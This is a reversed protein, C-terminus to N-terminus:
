KRNVSCTLNLRESCWCDSMDRHGVRSAIRRMRLGNKVTSFSLLAICSMYMIYPSMMIICSVMVFFFVVFTWHSCWWMVYLFCFPCRLGTLADDRYLIPFMLLFVVFTWHSCWWMVSCCGVFALSLVMVIYLFCYYFFVVFTWHSCKSICSMAVPFLLLFCFCFELSSWCVIALQVCM